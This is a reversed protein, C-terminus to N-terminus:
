EEDGTWELMGGVLNHLDKFGMDSMMNCTKASRSGSRCYVYYTKDKPLQAVKDQFDSEYFNILESNPIHGQQHEEPTRVDLLIYSKQDDEQEIIEQLEINTIEQYSM